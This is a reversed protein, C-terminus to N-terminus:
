TRAQALAYRDRRPRQGVAAEPRIASDGSVVQIATFVANLWPKRPRGPPDDSVWKNRSCFPV